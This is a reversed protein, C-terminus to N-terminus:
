LELFMDATLRVVDGEQKKKNFKELARTVLDAEETAAEALEEATATYQKGERISKLIREKRKEFKEHNKDLPSLNVSAKIMGMKPEADIIYTKGAELEAEVFSMNEAKAWFMHTGPECEYVLYKGHNFKGLYKEGDFFKFNILFGLASQRSFYVLAKGESPKVFEQASAFQVASLMLLAFFLKKFNM